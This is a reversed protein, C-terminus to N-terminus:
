EKSPQIFYGKGPMAQLVYPIKEEECRQMIYSLTHAASSHNTGGAMFANWTRLKESPKLLTQHVFHLM